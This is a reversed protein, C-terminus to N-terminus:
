NRGAVYPPNALAGFDSRNIYSNGYNNRFDDLANAALGYYSPNGSVPATKKVKPDLNWRKFREAWEPSDFRGKAADVAGENAYGFAHDPLSGSMQRGAALNEADQKADARVANFNSRSYLPSKVASWLRGRAVDGLFGTGFNGSARDAKMKELAKAKSEASSGGFWNGWGDTSGTAEFNRIRADEDAELDAMRNGKVDLKGIIDPNSAAYGVGGVGAATAGTGAAIRKGM